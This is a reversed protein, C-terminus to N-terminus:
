ESFTHVSPLGKEYLMGCSEYMSFKTTMLSIGEEKASELIRPDLVKKGRVLVVAKIGFVSCTNIVQTNSLGTLLLDPVKVMALIDSMLDGAAVTSIEIDKQDDSLHHIELQLIEIIEGIKM